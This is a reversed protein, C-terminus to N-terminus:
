NRTATATLEAATDIQGAAGDGIGLIGMLTATDEYVSYRVIKGAALELALTWAIRAERDTAHARARTSGLVVVRSGEAIYAEPAFELMQISSLVGGLYDLFGAHGHYRGAIPLEAPGHFRVEVEPDLAALVAAQDGRLFAAIATEVLARNARADDAQSM